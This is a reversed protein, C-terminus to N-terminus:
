KQKQLRIYKILSFPMYERFIKILRMRFNPTMYKVKMEDFSLRKLDSYFTTRSAPKISSHISAQNENIAEDITREHCEIRSKSQDILHNGNATNGILLSIGKEIENLYGFPITHGIGWFDGLTIDTKRPLGLFRCNYCSLQLNSNYNNFPIWYADNSGKMIKHKGNSFTIMRLTDYWGHKKHRFNIHSIKGFKLELWNIYKKLIFPSPVGHCIFDCTIVNAYDKRLFNKLGACQCPTGCFLIRRGQQAYNRIERFVNGMFSQAYKSLRLKHLDKKDDICIHAITMDELYAAGVVIGGMDIITEALASFVGGSTSHLRVNEDKHWAAYVHPRREDNSKIGNIVPCIRECLKCSICREVSLKPRYFGEEGHRLSLADRECVAVCAGCGTCTDEGCLQPIKKDTM